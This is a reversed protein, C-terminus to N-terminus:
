KQKKSGDKTLYYKRLGNLFLWVAIILLSIIKHEYEM